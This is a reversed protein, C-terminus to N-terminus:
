ERRQVPGRSAALVQLLIQTLAAPFCTQTSLPDPKNNPHPACTLLSRRDPV